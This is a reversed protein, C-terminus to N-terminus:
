IFCLDYYACKKCIKQETFKPPFEEKKVSEIEDIISKLKERDQESLEVLLTKKM